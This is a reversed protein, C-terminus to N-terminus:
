TNRLFECLVKGLEANETIPLFHQSTLPRAVYYRTSTKSTRLSSEKIALAAGRAVGVEPCACNMWCKFCNGSATQQQKCVGWTYVTYSRSPRVVGFKYIHKQLGGRIVVLRFCEYVYVVVFLGLCCIVSVAQLWAVEFERKHHCCLSIQSRKRVTDMM